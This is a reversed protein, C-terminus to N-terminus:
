RLGTEHSGYAPVRTAQKAGCKKSYASANNCSAIESGANTRDAPKKCRWLSCSVVVKLVATSRCFLLLRNIVMSRTQLIADPGRPEIWCLWLSTQNDDGM